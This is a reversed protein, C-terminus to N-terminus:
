LFLLSDAKKVWIQDMSGSQCHTPIKDQLLPAGYFYLFLQATLFSMPSAWLTSPVAAISFAKWWTQAALFLV